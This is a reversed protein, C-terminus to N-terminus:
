RTGLSNQIVQIFSKEFANDHCNISLVAYHLQIFRFIPKRRDELIM